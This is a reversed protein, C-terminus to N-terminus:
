IKSEIIDIRRMNPKVALSVAARKGEKTARNYLNLQRLCEDLALNLKLGDEFTLLINLVKPLNPSKPPMICSIQCGGYSVKKLKPM